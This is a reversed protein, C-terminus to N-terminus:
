RWFCNKSFWIKQLRIRDKLTDMCMWNGSHKFASLKKLKIISQMPKDEWFDKKNKIFRIAEKSIIFFGGNIFQTNNTKKENDFDIVKKNKIKLLGYQFPPRVVTATVFSKSQYHFKHLKKIDIDSLGDGYTMMFDENLSLKNYATKLRGGTGSNVGTNILYINLIKKNIRIKLYNYSKIKKIYIIKKNLEKLFYDEITKAKYGMCIVFDYFGYRVYIDIIHRLIPKSGIRVMPKAKVMGENDLRTGLGGCLIFTKM